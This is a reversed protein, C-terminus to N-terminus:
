EERLESCYVRGGMHEQRGCACLWFRFEGTSKGEQAFLALPDFGKIATVAAFLGLHNSDLIILHGNLSRKFPSRNASRSRAATSKSCRGILTKSACRGLSAKDFPRPM